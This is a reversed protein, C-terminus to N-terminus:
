VHIFNANEYGALLLVRKGKKGCWEPNHWVAAKLDNDKAYKLFADADEFETSVVVTMMGQVM